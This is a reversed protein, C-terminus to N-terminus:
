TTDHSNLDELVVSPYFEIDLSKYAIIFTLDNNKIGIAVAVVIAAVDQTSYLFTNSTNITSIAQAVGAVKCPLLTM